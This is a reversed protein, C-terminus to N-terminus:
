ILNRDFNFLKYYLENLDMDDLLNTVDAGEQKEDESVVGECWMVDDCWESVEGRSWRAESVLVAGEQECWESVAGEQEVDSLDSFKCNLM